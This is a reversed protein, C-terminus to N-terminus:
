GTSPDVLDTSRGEAAAVSEGAIVNTLVRKDSM